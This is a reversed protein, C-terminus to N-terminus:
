QTIRIHNNDHNYYGDSDTILMSKYYDDGKNIGGSNNDNRNYHYILSDNDTNM